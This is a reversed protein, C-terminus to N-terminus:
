CNASLHAGFDGRRRVRPVGDALTSGTSAESAVETVADEAAAGHVRAKRGRWRRQGDIYRGVREPRGEPVDVSRPHGPSLGPSTM